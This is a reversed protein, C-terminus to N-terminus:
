RSGQTVIPDTRVLDAVVILRFRYVELESDWGTCTVLTLQPNTTPDTVAMDTENVTFQDRVQYTYLNQETYVTIQDGAALNELYRFPGNGLGAVTVHGALVTNSGLGPWSSEGLWAVEQRLGAILWTLSTDDFPVYAVETDLTLSPIVIRNAPSTDPEPEGPAPTNVFEPTPIPFSPLTVIVEPTSFMYAPMFPLLTPTATEPAAAPTPSTTPEAQSMCSVALAAFAVLCVIALLQRVRRGRLTAAGLLIGMGGALWGLLMWSARRGATELRAAEELSIEGTGPLINTPSVTYNVGKTVTKNPDYTLTVTNTQTEQRTLSSNVKVIVTIQETENPMVTGLNVILSHSSRTVTGQTTTASSIDIYTPFSDSIMSNLMPANGANTVKITFTLSENVKASSPSVAVTL